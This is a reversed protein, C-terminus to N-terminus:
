LLCIISKYEKLNRTKRIKKWLKVGDPRNRCIYSWIEKMKFLAPEGPMIQEYAECLRELFVLVERGSVTEGSRIQRLLGPDSIIGRGIMIRDVAPFRERFRHYDECTNIDGNYCVPNQSAELASEFMDWDPRNKYFDKQVRPHITLEHVPYKNYIRIIDLFEDPREIGLRSKISILVDTGAFVQDLFRDLREPYALFGAGKGKTVVTGSPCGLNLNIENYGYEQLCGAAFLFDDANNTLVQPVLAVGENHEPLIDRKDRNKFRHRSVPAIFPSFYKEMGGFMERYIRRYIFTTIGELPALYFCVKECHPDRDPQM